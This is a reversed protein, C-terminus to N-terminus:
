KKEKTYSCNHYALVESGVWVGCKCHYFSAGGKPEGEMAKAQELINLETATKDHFRSQSMLEYLFIANCIVHALHPEGSEPDLWEGGWWAWLHRNLAAFYRNKGDPVIRWNHDDYKVAGKTLVRVLAKLAKVPLLDFRLKGGDDKRGKM